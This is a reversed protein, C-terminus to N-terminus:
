GSGLKHLALNLEKVATAVDEYDLASIAWKAHKQALEIAGADVTPVKRVVPADELVPASPVPPSLVHSPGPGPASPIVSANIDRSQDSSIPDSSVPSTPLSHQPPFYDSTASHEAPPPTPSPEERHEQASNGVLGGPSAAAGQSPGETPNADISVDPEPEMAALLERVVANPDTGDRIARGIRAAHLKAYKM